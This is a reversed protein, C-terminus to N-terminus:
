TSATCFQNTAKSSPPCSVVLIKMFGFYPENIQHLINKTNELIQLVGFFKILVLINEM